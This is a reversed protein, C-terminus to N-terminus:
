QISFSIACNRCYAFYGYDVRVYSRCNPCSGAKPHLYYQEDNSFQERSKKLESLDMDWINKSKKNTTKSDVPSASRSRSNSKKKHTSEKNSSKTKKSPSEKNKKTKEVSEDEFKLKASKSERLKRHSKDELEENHEKFKLTKKLPSGFEALVKGEKKEAEHRVDIEVNNRYIDGLEDEYNSSFKFSRINGLQKIDDLNPVNKSLHKKVIDEYLSIKTSSSLWPIKDSTISRKILNLVKKPSEAYQLASLFGWFFIDEKRMIDCYTETRLTDVVDRQLNELYHFGIQKPFIVIVSM